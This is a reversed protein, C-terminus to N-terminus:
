ADKGMADDRARRLIRILRNIGYRNLHVHWGPTVDETEFLADLWRDSDWVPEGPFRDVMVARAREIWSHLHQRRDAVGPQTTVLSVWNDADKSWGVEARCVTGPIAQMADPNGPVPINVTAQLASNIYEKPM